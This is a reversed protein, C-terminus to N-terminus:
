FSSFRVDAMWALMNATDDPDRLRVRAAVSATDGVVCAWGDPLVAFADFDTVDDGVFATARSPIDCQEMFCMLATGKNWNGAPRIEWTRKGQRLSLEKVGELVAKVIQGVLEHQDAEALQYHVSATWHKDEIWVGPVHPLVRELEGLVERLRAQADGAHPAVTETGNPALLELGHNGSYLVGKIGVRRQVDALARGSIIALVVGPLSKLREIAQRAPDPLEAESAHSVLPSLTGDFDCGLLIRPSTILWRQLDARHETWHPTM